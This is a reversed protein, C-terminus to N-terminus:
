APAAELAAAAQWLAEAEEPKGGALLLHGLNIHADAFPPHLDIVLRYLRAAADLRATQQLDVALNYLLEPPVTSAADGDLVGASELLQLAREPQRNEMAARILPLVPVAGGLAVGASELTKAARGPEGAALLSLGLNWRADAWEPRMRSANTFADVAAAPQGVLLSALGCAFAAEPSDPDLNALTRAAAGCRDRDGALAALRALNWAAAASDPLQSAAAGFDDLAM